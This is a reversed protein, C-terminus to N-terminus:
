DSMSARLVRLAQEHQRWKRWGQSGPPAERWEYLLSPDGEKERLTRWLPYHNKMLREIAEERGDTTV